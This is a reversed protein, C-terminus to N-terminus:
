LWKIAFMANPKYNTQQCVDNGHILCEDLLVAADFHNKHLYNLAIFNAKILLYRQFVFRNVRKQHLLRRAGSFIAFAYCQFKKKKKKKPKSVSSCWLLLWWVSLSQKDCSQVGCQHWMKQSKHASLAKFISNIKHQNLKIM